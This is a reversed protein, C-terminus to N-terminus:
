FREETDDPSGYQVVESLLLTATENGLAWLRRSKSIRYLIDEESYWDQDEDDYGLIRSLM